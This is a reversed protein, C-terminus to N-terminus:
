STLQGLGLRFEQPMKWLKEEEDFETLSYKNNLRKVLKSVTLRLIRFNFQRRTLNLEVMINKYTLDNETSASDRVIIRVMDFYREQSFAKLIWILAASSSKRMGIVSQRM